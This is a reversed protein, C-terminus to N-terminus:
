VSSFRLRLIDIFSHMIIKLNVNSRKNKKHKIFAIPIYKIKYGNKSAKILMEAEFAVSQLRLPIKQVIEKKILKISGTDYTKVGFLVLPMINYIFSIVKRQLQLDKYERKGIVIDANKNEAYKILRTIDSTSWDGDVSFLVINSYKAQRYLFLINKAIGLNEKQHFINIYKKQKFKKLIHETNDTSKDNSIIIEYDYNLALLENICKQLQEKLTLSNNYVPIVLSVSSKRNLNKM